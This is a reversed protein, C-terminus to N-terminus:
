KDYRGIAFKVEFREIRLKDGPRAESVTSIINAEKVFVSSRLNSVFEGISTYDLAEGKINLVDDELSLDSIWLGKPTNKAVYLLLAAPNKKISIAEKVAVLKQGLAQEQVKLDQIQKEYDKAKNVEAKLGNLKTRLVALQSNKNQIEEEWLPNIFFDPIYWILIVLILAKVKVKTLDLGGVNAIDVSNDKISLNIKIM